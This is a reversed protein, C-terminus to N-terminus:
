FGEVNRAILEASPGSRLYGRLYAIRTRWRDSARRLSLEAGSVAGGRQAARAGPRPARRGGSVPWDQAAM